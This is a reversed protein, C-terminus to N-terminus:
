TERMVNKLIDEVTKLLLMPEVPKCLAMAAGHRLAEEIMKNTLYGSLVLIPTGPCVIEMTKITNLGDMGPMAIDMLILEFNGRAAKQVAEYGDWACEVEYEGARMLVESFVDRIAEEDDVVLIKPRFTENLM